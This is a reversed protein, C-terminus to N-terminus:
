SARTHGAPKNHITLKENVGRMNMIQGRNYRLQDNIYCEFTIFSNKMLIVRHNWCKVLTLLFRSQFPTTHPAPLFTLKLSILKRSFACNLTTTVSPLCSASPGWTSAKSEKSKLRQMGAVHTWGHQAVDGKTLSLVSGQARMTRPTNTDGRQADTDKDTFYPCHCYRNGIWSLQSTNSPLFQPPLPFVGTWWHM